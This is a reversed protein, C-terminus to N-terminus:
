ILSIINQVIPIGVFFFCLTHIIYTANIKLTYLNNIEVYTPVALTLCSLM